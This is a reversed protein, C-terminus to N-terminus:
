AALTRWVLMAAALDEIATGVSKFLTIDDPTRDPKV